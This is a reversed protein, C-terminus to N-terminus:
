CSWIRPSVRPLLRALVAASAARVRHAAPGALRVVLMGNWASAGADCCATEIAARVADLKQEASPAVHVITSIACAGRGTAARDLRSAIEGDLRVNEALLLRGDRRIRWRDHFLGHTMREPRATRGFVVAERLTVSAGAAVEVDLRRSLRAGDFLISEQPLWALEADEAAALRTTITALGGDSRYVKEASQTTLAARAGVDLSFELQQQDGGAIGGSTNVIVGECGGGVRPFRLRLAGAERIEIASTREGTRALSASLQSRTRMYSPLAMCTHPPLGSELASVRM